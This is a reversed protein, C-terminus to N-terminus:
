DDHQQGRSSTALEIMARLARRARHLRTKVVAHSVKLQQSAQDTDLQEIDRLLIINRYDNPLMDICRRVLQNMEESELKIVPLETFSVTPEHYCGDPSLRSLAELSICHTNARSRLKMLCVNVVIRYLWTYVSSEGKFRHRSVFAALFADQVADAADEDNRLFRKAVSLLRPTFDDVLQEFPRHAISALSNAEVHARQFREVPPLSTSRMTDSTLRRNASQVKEKAPRYSKINAIM